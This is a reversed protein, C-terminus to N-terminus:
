WALLDRGMESLNRDWNNALSGRLSSTRVWTLHAGTWAQTDGRGLVYNDNVASFHAAPAAELSIGRARVLQDILCGADGLTTSINEDGGAPM